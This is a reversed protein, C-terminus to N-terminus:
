PRAEVGFRLGEVEAKTWAATTFPSEDWFNAKVAYDGGVGLDSGNVTTSTNNINHRVQTSGGSPLRQTSFVAVGLPTTEAPLTSSHGYLDADGTTAFEVHTTDGDNPIEDVMAFNDSGTSPTGDTTIDSTPVIVSHTVAGLRADAPDPTGDVVAIVVDSLNARTAVTTSTSNNASRFVIGQVNGAVGETNGTFDAVLVGNLYLALEGASSDSRYVVEFYNISDTAVSSTSVDVQTTGVDLRLTGDTNIVVRAKASSGRQIEVFARAFTPNTSIYYACNVVVYAADMGSHTLTSGSAIGSAGALVLSGNGTRSRASDQNVAATGSVDLHGNFETPVAYTNFSDWVIPTTAM